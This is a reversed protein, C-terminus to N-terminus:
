LCLFFPRHQLVGASQVTGASQLSPHLTAEGLFISFGKRNMSHAALTSFDGDISGSVGDLHQIGPVIM